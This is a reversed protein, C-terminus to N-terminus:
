TSYDIYTGKDPHHSKSSAPQEDQKKRKSLSPQRKTSPPFRAPHDLNSRPSQQRSKVDAQRQAEAMMAENMHVRQQLQSQMKSGKFTNSLSGLAEIPKFSM